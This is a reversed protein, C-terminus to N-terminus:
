GRVGGFVVRMGSGVGGQRHDLFELGVYYIPTHVVPLIVPPFLAFSTMVEQLDITKQDLLRKEYIPGEFNFDVLFLSVRVAAIESLTDFEHLVFSSVELRQSNEEFRWNHEIASIFEHPKSFKFDRFIRNGEATQIGIGARREGRVSSTDLTKLKLFLSVCKGHFSRDGKLVYPQFAELIKKKVKSAHGFEKGNERVRQMSEATKIAKANFGGGAKRAYGRGKVIYFNIDGITGTFKMFGKQRAM